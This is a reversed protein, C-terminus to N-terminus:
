DTSPQRYNGSHHKPLDEMDGLCWLLAVLIGSFCVLLPYRRLRIFLERASPTMDERTQNDLRAYQYGSPYENTMLVRLLYNGECVHVQDGHGGFLLQDHGCFRTYRKSRLIVLSWLLSSCNRFLMSPSIRAMMGFRVHPGKQTWGTSKRSM